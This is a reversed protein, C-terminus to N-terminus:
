DTPPTPSSHPRRFAPLETTQAASEASEAPTPRAQAPTTDPNPGAQAPMPDPTVDPTPAPSLQDAAPGSERSSDQAQEAAPVAPIADASPPPATPETRSAPEAAGSPLLPGASQRPIRARLQWEIPRTAPPLRLVDGTPHPEPPGSEAPGTPSAPGDNVSPSRVPAPNTTATAPTPGIPAPSTSAPAPTTGTAASSTSASATVPSTLAPSTTAAAPEDAAIAAGPGTPADPMQASIEEPLAHQAPIATRRHAAPGRDAAPVDGGVADAIPTTVGNPQRSPGSGSRRLRAHRLLALLLGFGLLVLAWPIIAASLEASRHPIGIAAAHVASGAAVGGLLLLLCLWSYVRSILGAGRLALVSCAAVVVMADFILPYIKALSDSVGSQRALAHIGSYSLVFAAAALAVLGLAVASLALIRLGPGSPTGQGAGPPAARTGRRNSKPPV